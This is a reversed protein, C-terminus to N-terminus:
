SSPALIDFRAHQHRILLPRVSSTPFHQELFYPLELPGAMPPAMAQMEVHIQKALAHVLPEDNATRQSEEEIRQNLQVTDYEMNKILSMYGVIFKQVISTTTQCCDLELQQQNVHISELSQIYESAIKRFQKYQAACAAKANKSARIQTAIQEVTKNEKGTKIEARDDSDLIEFIYPDIGDKNMGAELAKATATFASGFADLSSRYQAKTAQFIRNREMADYQLMHLREVHTELEKELDDIDLPLNICMEDQASAVQAFLASVRTLFLGSGHCTMSAPQAAELRDSAAESFARLEDKHKTQLEVFERLTQALVKAAHIWEASTGFAAREM